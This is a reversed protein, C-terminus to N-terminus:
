KILEQLKAEIDEINVDSSLEAVKEGNKYFGITPLGLVKQSIALRKNTGSDLACFKAKGQYKEALEHVSPMLELCPECKASWFDVMVLGEANLVEKEFTVKDVEIM